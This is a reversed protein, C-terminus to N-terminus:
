KEPGPKPTRRDTVVVDDPFVLRFTDAPLESNVRWNSNQGEFSYHLEEPAQDKTVKVSEYKVRIPLWIGAQVEKHAGSEIRDFEQLPQEDGFQSLSARKVVVYNRAHDVWFRYKRRVGDKGLVPQTEVIAVPRGEWEAHGAVTANRTRLIESVPQGMYHTTFELPNITFWVLQKDIWGWHFVGDSGADLSRAVEGDYAGQWRGSSITVENPRQGIGAQEGWCEYWARGSNDVISKTELQLRVPKEVPLFQKQLRVYKTTVSLNRITTASKKLGDMVQNITLPRPDELHLVTLAVLVLSNTAFHTM